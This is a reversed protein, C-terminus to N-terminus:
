AGHEESSRRQAAEYMEDPYRMGYSHVLETCLPLEGTPEFTSHLTGDEDRGHYKREFLNVLTYGHNPDYGRVETIHTIKRSGDSLRGTQVILNIASALQLRMAALPMEVESMMAMTELRNM